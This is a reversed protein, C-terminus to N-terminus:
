NVIKRSIEKIISAATLSEEYTVDLHFVARINQGGIGSVLVNNEALSKVFNDVKIQESISFRVINTAVSDPNAIIFESESITKTFDVAKTHDDKLKPLNHTLAYKAAAALLGTQRMGGGFTKRIKWARSITESNSLLMSGVPAGLGKSFCVSITDFFKAYERLPINTISYANWIRAGDLHMFLNHNKALNYASQIYDFSLITGGHRNHTNELALIKTKPFYYVDPRIAEEIKNLFMEGMVSHVPFIQAGSLRAPAANEYYFIHADAEAIIEDGPHTNLALCIQNSMTGTPVFLGAEKGFLDAVYEQLENVTQDEGYVDDGVKASLMAELMEPSPRTITDSRLDIM